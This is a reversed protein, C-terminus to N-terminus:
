DELKLEFVYEYRIVRKEKENKKWAEKLHSMENIENTGITKFFTAIKELVEM